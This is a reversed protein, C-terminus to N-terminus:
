SKFTCYIGADADYAALADDVKAIRGIPSAQKEGTMGLTRLTPISKKDSVIKISLWLKMLIDRLRRVSLCLCDREDQRGHVRVDEPMCVPTTLCSSKALEFALCTNDPM